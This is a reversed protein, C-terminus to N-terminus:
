SSCNSRKSIFVRIRNSIIYANPVSVLFLGAPKLWQHSKKIINEPYYLHELVEGAVIIDFKQPFQWNNYLDMHKTKIGLKKQAKKLLQKDIDVGLVQYNKGFFHRFYEMEKAFRKSTGIDVVKKKRSIKKIEKEFIKYM